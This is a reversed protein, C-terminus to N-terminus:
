FRRNLLESRREEPFVGWTKGQPQAAYDKPAKEATLVHHIARALHKAQQDIMQLRIEPYTLGQTDLLHDSIIPGADYEETMFHATSYVPHGNTLAWEVSSSGRYDPLKGPHCNVIGFRVSKLMPTVLKRPTGCSGLVSISLAKILHLCEDANHNKVFYFPVQLAEFDSFKHFVAKGNTRDSIISVFKQNVEDGDSIVAIQSHGLKKLEVVTPYLLPSGPYTLLGVINNNLSM